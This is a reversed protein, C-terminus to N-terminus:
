GKARVAALDRITRSWDAGCEGGLDVVAQHLRQWLGADTWQTFRRYVMPAPLNFAPPLNQWRCGSTLIFVIATFVAQDSVPEPAGDQPDPPILPVLPQVVLTWMDDSVLHQSLQDVVYTNVYDVDARCVRTVPHDAGLYLTCEDLLAAFEARQAEADALTGRVERFWRLRALDIRVTLVDAHHDGHRRRRASLTDTFRREANRRVDMVHFYGDFTRTMRTTLLEWGGPLTPDQAIHEVVLEHHPALAALLSLDNPNSPDPDLRAAVRNLLDTYLVPLTRSAVPQDPHHKNVERIVPHLSLCRTIAGFVGSHRFVVEDVLGFANLRSLTRAFQEPTVDSFASYRALVGEDLLASPLPAHTLHSLLRLLPGAHPMGLDSLLDLTLEWTCSLLQRQDLEGGVTHLADIRPFQHEFVKRYDAFTTPINIQPMPPLKASERLYRGALHLVLPLGGLTDSLRLAQDRSGAGPAHDLLVDAGHHVSLPRVHHLRSGPWAADAGNRTTVVVSGRGQYLAHLWPALIRTDDANDVVLLWPSPSTALANKLVIIPSRREAWADIEDPPAGADAAVERLAASLHRDTSADVWWVRMDVRDRILRQALTLAITTKGSGGCGHVVNRTGDQRAVIDILLDVIEDRGRPNTALREVPATISVMNMHGATGPVNVVENVYSRHGSHADGSGSVEVRRLAGFQRVEVVADRGAQVVVGESSVWATQDVSAGSMSAREGAVDGGDDRGSIRGGKVVRRMM